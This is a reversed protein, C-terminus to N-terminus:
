LNERHKERHWRHCSCYLRPFSCLTDGVWKRQRRCRNACTGCKGTVISFDNNNRARPYIECLIQRFVDARSPRAKADDRLRSFIKIESM